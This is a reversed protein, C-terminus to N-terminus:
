DWIVVRRDGGESFPVAIDLVAEMPKAGELLRNPRRIAVISRSNIALALIEARLPSRGWKPSQPPLARSVGPKEWETKKLEERVQGRNKPAM